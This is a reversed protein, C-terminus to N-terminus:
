DVLRFDFGGGLRRGERGVKQLAILLPEKELTEILLLGV